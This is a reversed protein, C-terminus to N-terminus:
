VELRRALEPAHERIERELDAVRRELLRNFRQLEDVRTSLRENETFPDHAPDVSGERALDRHILSYIDVDFIDCYTLLINLPPLVKEREYDGVTVPTKGLRQGLQTQNLGARKRLYKLNSALHLDIPQYFKVKNIQVFLTLGKYKYDYEM